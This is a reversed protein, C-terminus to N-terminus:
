KSTELASGNGDSTTSIVERYLVRNTRNLPANEPL